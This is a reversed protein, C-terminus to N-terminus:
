WGDSCRQGFIPPIQFGLIPRSRRQAGKEGYCYRIVADDHKTASAPADFVLRQGVSDAVGAAYTLDSLVLTFQNNKSFIYPRHAASANRYEEVIKEFGTGSAEMVMCRVLINCVVPNRRQSIIIGEFLARDPYAPILRHSVSLKKVAQKVFLEMEDIM